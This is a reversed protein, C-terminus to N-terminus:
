HSTGPPLTTGSKILMVISKCPVPSVTRYLQNTGDRNSSLISTVTEKPLVVFPMWDAVSPGKIWKFRERCIESADVECRPYFPERNDPIPLNPFRVLLRLGLVRGPRAGENVISIPVDFSPIFWRRNENKIPYIRLGLEGVGTIFNAKVFHTKWLTIVSLVVAGVSILASILSIILTSSM